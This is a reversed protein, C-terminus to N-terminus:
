TSPIHTNPHTSPEIPTRPIQSPPVEVAAGDRNIYPPPSVEVKVEYPLYIYMSACMYMYIYIYM